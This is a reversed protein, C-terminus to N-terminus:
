GAAPPPNGEDSATPQEGTGPVRKQRRQPEIRKLLSLVGLTVASCILGLQWLGCAAVVGLAATVWIAAASTLGRVNEGSKGPRTTRFIEGAGLFGIGTAVGQIVRSIPDREGPRLGILPVLTFLCAGLSVLMYTRMGAPKGEVSRNFGVAAGAALALGIRLLMQKWDGAELALRDM